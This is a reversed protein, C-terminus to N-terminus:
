LIEAWDVLKGKNLFTAARRQMSRRLDVDNLLSLTKKRIVEETVSSADGLFLTTNYQAFRKADAHNHLSTMLLSPLRAAAAEYASVGFLLIGLDSSLMLYALSSIDERMLFRSDNQNTIEHTFGPGKVVICSFEHPLSKLAAIIKMTLNDVDSGGMTVLIQLRTKQIDINNVKRKGFFSKDVIVYKWGSYLRGQINRVYTKQLHAVPYIVVDANLRGDGINDLLITRLGSKKLSSIYEQSVPMKLDIIIQQIKEKKTALTINSLEEELTLNKDLLILEFASQTILKSAVADDKTIFFCTSSHKIEKALVLCRKLHGFGVEYGADVRFAIGRKM